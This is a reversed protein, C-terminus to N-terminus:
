LWPGEGWLFVSSGGASSQQLHHIPGQLNQSEPQCGAGAQQRGRVQPFQGLGGREGGWNWLGQFNGKWGNTGTLSQCCYM